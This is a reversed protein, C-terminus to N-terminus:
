YKSRTETKQKRLMPKKPPKVATAVQRRAPRGTTEMAVYSRGDYYDQRQESTLQPTGTYTGSVNDVRGFVDAYIDYSIFDKLIAQRRIKLSVTKLYKFGIKLATGWWM